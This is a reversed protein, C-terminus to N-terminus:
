TEVRDDEGRVAEVEPEDAESSGESTEADVRRRSSRWWIGGLGIIAVVVFLPALGAVAPGFLTPVVFALVSVILIAVLLSVLWGM